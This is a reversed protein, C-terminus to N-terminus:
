LESKQGQEQHDKGDCSPPRNFLAVAQSSIKPNLLPPPHNGPLITEMQEDRCRTEEANHALNQPLRSGRSARCHVMLETDM